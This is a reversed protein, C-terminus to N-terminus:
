FVGPHGGRLYATLCLASLAIAILPAPVPVTHSLLWGLTAIMTGHWIGHNAFALGLAALSVATAIMTPPATAAAADTAASFIIIFRRWGLAIALVLFIPAITGAQM